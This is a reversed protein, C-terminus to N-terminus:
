ALRSRVRVRMNGAAITKGANGSPNYFTVAVQTASVIDPILQMGQLNQDYSAEVFDGRSINTFGGVYSVPGYTPGAAIAGPNITNSNEQLAPIRSRSWLQPKTGITVGLYMIDINFPVSGPSNITIGQATGAAIPANPSYTIFSWDSGVLTTVYQGNFGFQITVSGTGGASRVWCGLSYQGTVPLVETSSYVINNTTQNINLYRGNVGGAQETITAGNANSIVRGAGAYIYRGIALDGNPVFNLDASSKWGSSVTGSWADQDDKTATALSCVALGKPSSVWIGKNVIKVNSRTFTPVPSLTDFYTGAEFTVDIDATTNSSDINMIGINYYSVDGGAIRLSQVNYNANFELAYDRATAFGQQADGRFRTSRFTNANAENYFRVVSVALNDFVNWYSSTYDTGAVDGFAVIDFAVDEFRGNWSGRLSLTYNKADLGKIIVNKCSDIILNGTGSFVVGRMDLILNGSSNTRGTKKVLIDGPSTYNGPVVRVYGNNGCDIIARNIAQGIGTDGSLIYANANKVDAMWAALNRANLGNTATIKSGSIDNPPSAFAVM